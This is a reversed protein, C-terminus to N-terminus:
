FLQQWVEFSSRKIMANQMPFDLTGVRVYKWIRLTM